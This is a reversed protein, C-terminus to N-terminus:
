RPRSGSSSWLAWAVFALAAWPVAQRLAETLESTEKGRQERLAEVSQGALQAQAEAARGSATSQQKLLDVALGLFERETQQQERFINSASDIVKEPSVNQVNAGAGIVTAQDQGAAKSDVTTTTTPTYISVSSKSGM